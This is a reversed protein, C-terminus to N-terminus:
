TGAVGGGKEWAWPKKNRVNQGCTTGWGGPGGWQRNLAAGSRALTGKAEVRAFEWYDELHVAESFRRRWERGGLPQGTALAAMRWKGGHGTNGAGTSSGMSCGLYFVSCKTGPRGMPRPHRFFVGVARGLGVSSGGAWGVWELDGLGAGDGTTGLCGPGVQRPGESPQDRSDVSSGTYTRGRTGVKHRWDLIPRGFYVPV